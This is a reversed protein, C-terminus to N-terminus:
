SFCHIRLSSEHFVAVFVLLRFQSVMSEWSYKIIGICIMRLIRDALYRHVLFAVPVCVSVCVVSM